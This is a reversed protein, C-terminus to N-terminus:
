QEDELWQYSQISAQLELVSPINGVLERLSALKNQADIVKDQDLLIRIEELKSSVMESRAKGEMLEELVESSSLGFSREPHGLVEAYDM